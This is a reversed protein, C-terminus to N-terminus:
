ILFKKGTQKFYIKDLKKFEADKKEIKKQLKAFEGDAKGLNMSIGFFRKGTQKFFSKKLKELENAKKRLKKELDSFEKDNM